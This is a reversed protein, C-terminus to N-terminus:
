SLESILLPGLRRVLPVPLKKWVRILTGYRSSEPEMPLKEGRHAPLFHWYLPFEEANWQKKFRWTGSGRTSRGFDFCTAGIRCAYELLTWYLLMNPCRDKYRADSAAWPVCVTDRDRLTFAAALPVSNLRVVFLKVVSNFSEIIAEFFKRSHPPSGLDRMNRVYVGYFERILDKGGSQAALNMSRAKRVQNRVKPDLDQWLRDPDAPLARRLDVKDERVAPLDALRRRQRLQAWRLKRRRVLGRTQALLDKEAEPDDALIGAADFYPLSCLHSGFIRSRQEILQVAGVVRGNRRATLYIPRCGYATQFVHGWQPDHFLSAESNRALYDDVTDLSAFITEVRADWTDARVRDRLVEPPRVDALAMRVKETFAERPGYLHLVDAFPELDPLVPAVTPKGLALCERIKLPGSARIQEDPVYPVVFIDMAQLYAPLEDYSKPGLVRVNPLEAVGNLDVKVPGILVLHLNPRTRALERLLDLDIKEYISGFFCARHHPVSKIDEPESRPTQFHDRDVAHPLLIPKARANQHRDALLQSCAFILDARRALGRDARRISEANGGPWLSYDDTVYYVVMSEGLRGIYDRATPVTTWLIPRHFGLRRLTRRIRGATWRANARAVASTGAVPLMPPDLVWFTPGIQRLPRYWRRLKELGRLLTFRDPRAARLGLSNVWLVRHNRGIRNFLHQCSSPHRGYDDSFVVFDLSRATM